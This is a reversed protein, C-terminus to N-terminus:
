ATSRTAACLSIPIPSSTRPCRCAADEIAALCRAGRDADFGFTAGVRSARELLVTAWSDPHCVAQERAAVRGFQAECRVHYRCRADLYARTWAVAREDDRESSIACSATSLALVACALVSVLASRAGGGAREPRKTLSTM